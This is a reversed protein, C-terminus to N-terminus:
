DSHSDLFSRYDEESILIQHCEKDGYILEDISEINALWKTIIYADRKFKFVQELDSPFPPIPFTDLTRDNWNGIIYNGKWYNIGLYNDPKESPPTKGIMLEYCTDVTRGVGISIQVIRSIAIGRKEYDVFFHSYFRHYLDLNGEKTLEQEIDDWAFIIVPFSGSKLNEDTLMRAFGQINVDRPATTAFILESLRPNFDKAKIVDRSVDERSLTGGTRVKCQIGIWNLTDDKRGILDVGAQEQGRRGVRQINSDHLLRKWLALCLNEFEREDTPPALRLNRIRTM